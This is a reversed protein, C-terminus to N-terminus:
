LLWDTRGQLTTRLKRVDATRNRASPSGPQKGARGDRRAAEKGPRLLHSRHQRDRVVQPNTLGTLLLSGSEIHALVDSMLDAGCAMKVEVSDVNKESIIEADLIRQVDHLKM